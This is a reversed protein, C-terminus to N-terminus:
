PCDNNCKEILDDIVKSAVGTCRIFIGMEKLSDTDKPDGSLWNLSTVLLNDDDWGLVKAHLRPQEVVNLSVGDHMADAIIERLNIKTVPKTNRSYYIDASIGNTSVASKFSPLTSSYLTTGLRHSMIFIRREAEDRARLIYQQHQSGIVLTATANTGSPRIKEKATIKRGIEVLETALSTWIGDHICCLRSAYSLLDRVIRSDRLRVSVEFSFFNSTFWNCSGVIAIMEGNVGADCLIFKSHSGTSHSHFTISSELSIIDKNKRLEELAQRTSVIEDKDENQGWFIHISVGRKSAEIIKPLFRLFNEESIFTSHIILKTQSKDIAQELAALHAAGDIILDATDFNIERCVEQQDFPEFRAGPVAHNIAAGPASDYHSGAVALIKSRLLSLDRKPPLGYVVGEKVTAIAYRNVVGSPEAGVFTEDPDLLIDLMGPVDVSAQITNPKLIIFIEKKERERITREHVLSWERNRFINGHVLDIIFNTPRRKRELINPLESKALAIDGFVNCKFIVIDETQALDVWGARMLRILAEIVIRRPLNAHSALNAATWDRKSLAELLIHEIVSWPRGKDVIFNAKGKLVPIAVHITKM